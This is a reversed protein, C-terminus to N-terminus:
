TSLFLELCGSFFTKYGIPSIRQLLNYSLLTMTLIKCTFYNDGRFSHDWSKIGRLQLVREEGFGGERGKREEGRRENRQILSSASPWPDALVRRTLYRRLAREVMM